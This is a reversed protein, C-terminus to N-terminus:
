HRFAGGQRLVATHGSANELHAKKRRFVLAGPPLESGDASGHERANGFDLVDVEADGDFVQALSLVPGRLIQRNIFNKRVIDVM